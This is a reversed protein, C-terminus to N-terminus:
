AKRKRAVAVLGGAGALLMWAAAPLPVPASIETASATGYYLQSFRSDTTVTFEFVSGAAVDIGGISLLNSGEFDLFGPGVYSDAVIENSAPASKFAFSYWTEGTNNTVQFTDTHLGGTSAGILTENDLQDIVSGITAAQGASAVFVAVAAAAATKLVTDHIM